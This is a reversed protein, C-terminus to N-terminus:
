RDEAMEALIRDVDESTYNGLGKRGVLRTGGKKRAPILTVPEADLPVLKAIAQRHRTVVYPEGAEVDALAATPNQRLEAVTITRM